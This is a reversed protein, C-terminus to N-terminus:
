RCEEFCAPAHSEPCVCALEGDIVLCTGSPPAAVRRGVGCLEGVESCGCEGEYECGQVVACAMVVWAAGVWLLWFRWFGM